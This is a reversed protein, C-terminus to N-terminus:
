SCMAPRKKSRAPSPRGASLQYDLGWARVVPLGEVVGDPRGQVIKQVLSRLEPDEMSRQVQRTIISVHGALDDSDYFAVQTM